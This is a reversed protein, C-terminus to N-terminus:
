YFGKKMRWDQEKQYERQEKDKKPDHYEDLLFRRQSDRDYLYAPRHPSPLHHLIGDRTEILRAKEIKRVSIKLFPSRIQEGERGTFIQVQRWASITHMVGYCDLLGYYDPRKENEDKSQAFAVGRDPSLDLKPKKEPAPMQSMAYLDEQAEKWIKHKIQFSLMPRRIGLREIDNKWVALFFIRDAINILGRYHPYRDTYRNYCPYAHGRNWSPEGPDLDKKPAPIRPRDRDPIM